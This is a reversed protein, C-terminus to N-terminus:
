PSPEVAADRPFTFSSRILPKWAFVGHSLFTFFGEAVAMIISSMAAIDAARVL